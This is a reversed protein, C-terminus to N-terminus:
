DSCTMSIEAYPYSQTTLLTSIDGTCALNNTSPSNSTCTIDINISNIAYPGTFGAYLSSDCAWSESSQTSCTMNIPANQYYQTMLDTNINGNCSLDNLGDSSSPCLLNISVSNITYPGTFGTYLSDNCHWSQSQQQNSTINGQQGINQANLADQNAQNLDKQALAKDQQYQAEEQQLKANSSALSSSNSSISNIKPTGRNSGRQQQYHSSTNKLNVTSPSHIRTLLTGVVAIILLLVAIVGFVKKM